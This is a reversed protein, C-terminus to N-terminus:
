WSIGISYGFLLGTRDKTDTTALQQYGAELKALFSGLTLECGGLLAYSKTEYIPMLGDLTADRSDIEGNFKYKGYSLNSYLLVFESLRYGYLLQFEQVSLTYLVSDSGDTEYENGGIGASFAMKHGTGNATRPAGMFQYKLGFISNASGTHNWFFDIQEMLSSSFLFGSRKVDSYLVGEDVSGKSVDATLQSASTQQFEFSSRFVGGQSEPTVFRNGPIIYKSACSVQLFLFM